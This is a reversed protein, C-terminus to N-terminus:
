DFNSLKPFLNNFSPPLKNHVYRYMFSAQNLTFLDSFKLINLKKFSNGTHSNYKLNAIYRIARKQLVTIMDIDKNRSNGWCSLNFEIHSRFLSNYITYKINMPLLNRLRSLAYNASAAKGRVHKLHHKWTLHEDLHVGVFKFLKEKCDEGIRDIDENQIKLKLNTFDVQQSKDRFLIYKTKSINLTLKNARFWDAIKDLEIKAEIYLKVLDNSSM